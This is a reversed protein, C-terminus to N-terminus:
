SGKPTAFVQTWYTRYAGGEALGVGLETLSCNLINARHGPSGMWATVVSAATPQGAAINEAARSYSYGADTIRQFPSRGDLGTHDFYSNDRMDTSHGAAVQALTSNWALDPCGVKRREANTLELVARPGTAPPQTTPPKTTPPQTTPPKTTPPQTTPPQTTPPQTSSTPRSTTSTSPRTTPPQTTSTPPQTTSTPPQTTSPTATTPPAVVSTGPSDTTTTTPRGPREPRSPREPKTPREPKVRHNNDPRFRAGTVRHHAWGWVWGRQGWTDSSRRDPPQEARTEEAAAERDAAPGAVILVGGMAMVMLAAMLLRAPAVRAVNSRLM